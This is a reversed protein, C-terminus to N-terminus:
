GAASRRGAGHRAAEGGIERKADGGFGLLQDTSTRNTYIVLTGGKM